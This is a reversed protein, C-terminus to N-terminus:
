DIPIQSFADSYSDFGSSQIAEARIKIKFNGLMDYTSNSWNSPIVINTFLIYSVGEVAPKGKNAVFILKNVTSSDRDLIFQNTNFAIMMATINSASTYNYRYAGFASDSTSYSTGSVLRSTVPNNNLNYTPDYCIINAIRSLRNQDTILTDSDADYFEVIIRVYPSGKLVKVTPDKVITTGPMFFIESNSDFSPESISIKVDGLEFKSLSSSPAYTFFSYTIGIGVAILLLFAMSIIIIKVTKNM